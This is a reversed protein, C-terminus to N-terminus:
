ADVDAGGVSVEAFDTGFGNWHILENCALKVSEEMSHAKITATGYMKWCIEYENM